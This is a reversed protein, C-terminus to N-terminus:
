RSASYDPTFPASAPRPSAPSRSLSGSALQRTRRLEGFRPGGSAPKRLSSVGRPFTERSYPLPFSETPSTPSSTPPPPPPTPPASSSPARPILRSLKRLRELFQDWSITQPPDLDPARALITLKRKHRHLCAHLEGPNRAAEQFGKELDHPNATAKLQLIAPLVYRSEPHSPSLRFTEYIELDQGHSFGDYELIRRVQFGAARLKRAVAREFRIGRDRSSKGRARADNM